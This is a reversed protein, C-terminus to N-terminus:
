LLVLMRTSVTIASAAKLREALTGSGDVHPGQTDWVLPVWHRIHTSGLLWRYQSSFDPRVIVRNSHGYGAALGFRNLRRSRFAGQMRGNRRRIVPLLFAGHEQRDRDDDKDKPGEAKEREVDRGPEEMEKQDNANDHEDDM